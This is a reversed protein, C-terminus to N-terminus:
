WWAPRAPNAGFGAGKAGSFAAYEAIAPSPGAVGVGGVLVGNKFLPVGGPNVANPNSDTLDQKGTM